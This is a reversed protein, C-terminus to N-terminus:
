VTGDDTRMKKSKLDTEESLKKKSYKGQNKIKKRNEMNKLTSTKSRMKPGWNAEPNMQFRKLSNKRSDPNALPHEDFSVTEDVDEYKEMITKGPSGDSLNSKRGQKKAWARMMAWIFSNPADTKIGHKNAHTLSARYGANLLASLYVTVKGQSQKTINCLRSLEYYLPIDQLEELVMSLMGVMRPFTQFQDDQLSQKLDAVFGLDHIPAIWIPGGVHHTNGCYSCERGVPPGTPLSYKIQGGKNHTGLRGLPHIALSECGTCQYVHGLKSTSQKCVAQGTYVRVFVRCYFDISLSLLPQIYRGYRNAHAELCQLLIRLAFEHCSRTKLAIAGYKTYCTEPSNGCLVAMDTATVCLLGGESVAQVASDLFPTPSGYPDLDIVDFREKPQKHQYMLLSADGNHPTVLKEVGNHSVNRRISETAQKSWDNAVVSKLGRIEKAFRISRLGSAALAELVTIGEECVGGAEADVVDLHQAAHAQIVATSLDRNFEQVPNYFVDNLSPFLVEAKGEKVVTWGESNQSFRGQHCVGAGAGVGEEAEGMVGSGAAESVVEKDLMDGGIGLPEVM